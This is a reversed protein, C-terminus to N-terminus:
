NSKSWFFCFFFKITTWRLSLYCNCFMFVMLRNMWDNDAAREHRLSNLSVCVHIVKLLLRTPPFWVSSLTLVNTQVRPSWDTLWRWSKRGTPWLSLPASDPSSRRAHSFTFAPIHPPFVTQESSVGSDARRGRGSLSKRRWTVTWMHKCRTLSTMETYINWHRCRQRRGTVQELHKLGNHSTKPKM